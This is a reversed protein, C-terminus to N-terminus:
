TQLLKNPQEKIYFVSILVQEDKRAAGEFCDFNQTSWVCQSHESLTDPSRIRFM